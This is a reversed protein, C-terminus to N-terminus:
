RNGIRWQQNGKGHCDWLWVIAGNERSYNSVDLCKGSNVNIIRYYLSNIRTLRWRQNRGKNWVFQQVNVGNPSADDKFALVKGSHQSVIAVENNEIEIINWNQNPQDAYEWQQVDAGDHYSREVIDLCKNSNRNTIPGSFIARGEPKKVRDAFGSGVTDQTFVEVTFAPMPLSVATALTFLLAKVFKNM